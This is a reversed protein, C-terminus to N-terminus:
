ASSRAKHGLRAERVMHSLSASLKPRLMATTEISLKARAWVGQPALDDGTKAERQINTKTTLTTMMRLLGLAEATGLTAHATLERAAVKGYGEIRAQWLSM